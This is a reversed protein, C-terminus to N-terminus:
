ARNRIYLGTDVKLIFSNVKNHFRQEHDNLRDFAVYFNHSYADKRSKHRDLLEMINNNDPDKSLRWKLKKILYDNRVDDNYRRNCEVTAEEVERTINSLVRLARRGNSNLTDRPYRTKIEDLINYWRGTDTNSDRSCDSPYPYESGNDHNSGSDSPSQANAISYPLTADLVDKFFAILPKLVVITYALGIYTYNDINLYFRLCITLLGIIVTICMNRISLTNKLHKFSMNKLKFSFISSELTLTVFGYSVPPSYIFLAKYLTFVTIIIGM